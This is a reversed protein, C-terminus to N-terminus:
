TRGRYKPLPATSEQNKDLWDHIRKDTDASKSAASLIQATMARQAKNLDDRLLARISRQWHTQRPLQAIHDNLLDLDLNLGLGFYTQGVRDIDLEIGRAVEGIDLSSYLSDLEAIRLALEQPIELEM